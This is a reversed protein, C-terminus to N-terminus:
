KRVRFREGRYVLVVGDPEIKELTAGNDLLEGQRYKQLNILVFRRQPDNAYVHVDFRPEQFGMRFEDQMDELDPIDSGTADPVTNTYVNTEATEVIHPQGTYASVMDDDPLETTTVPVTMAGTNHVTANVRMESDMGQRDRVSEPPVLGTEAVQRQELVAVKEIREVGSGSGTAIREDPADSSNRGLIFAIILINMALVAALPWVWRNQRTIEPAEHVAELDPVDGM